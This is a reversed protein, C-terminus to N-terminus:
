DGRRRIKQLTLRLNPAGERPHTLGNRGPASTFLIPFARPPASILAVGRAGRGAGRAGRQCRRALAQPRPVLPILRTDYLAAFINCESGLKDYWKRKETEYKPKIRSVPAGGGGTPHESSVYVSSVLSSSLKGLKTTPHRCCSPSDECAPVAKTPPRRETSDAGLPSTDRAPNAAAASRPRM